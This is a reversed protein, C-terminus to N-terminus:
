RGMRTRHRLRASFQFLHRTAAETGVAAEGAGADADACDAGGDARKHEQFEQFRQTKGSELLAFDEAKLGHVPQGNKDHVVVDVYVLRTTAHLTQISQQQPNQPPANPQLATGLFALTVLPLVRYGM